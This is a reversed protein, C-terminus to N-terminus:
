VEIFCGVARFQLDTLLDEPLDSLKVMHLDLDSESEYVEETIKEYDKVLKELIDYKKHSKITRDFIKNKEQTTLEANKKISKEVEKSAFEHIEKRLEALGKPMMEEIVQLILKGEKQLKEINKMKAYSLTINKVDSFDVPRIGAKEVGTLLELAQLVQIKKM